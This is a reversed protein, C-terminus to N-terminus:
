RTSRIDLQDQAGWCFDQRKQALDSNNARRRGFFIIRNNELQETLIIDFSNEFAKKFNEVTYDEPLNPVGNGAWLGLPMFEILAYERTYMSLIKIVYDMPFGRALILHHTLALAIVINSRFRVQPLTVFSSIDPALVDQQIITLDKGIPVVNENTVTHHMRDLAAASSDIAVISKISTERLIRFSFLGQNAGIDVATECGLDRLITVLRNFRWSTNVEDNDRCQDHYTGWVDNCQYAQLRPIRLLLSDFSPYTFDNSLSPAFNHLFKDLLESNNSIRMLIHNIRRLRKTIINKNRYNKINRILPSFYNQWSDVAFRGLGDSLIRKALYENGTQWINLPWWYSTCFESIPFRFGDNTDRYFSGLDVFKPKGNLFLINYGHCDKLYWGHEAAIQAIKLVLNAAAKLMSFTWEHPYTINPIREHAVILSYGELKLPTIRCEPIMEKSILTDVLGSAFLLGVEEASADTKIGRYIGGRWEFVKGVNDVSPWPHFNVESLPIHTQM